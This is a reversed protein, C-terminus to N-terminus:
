LAVRSTVIFESFKRTLVVFKPGKFITLNFPPETRPQGIEEPLVFDFTSFGTRFLFSLTLNV